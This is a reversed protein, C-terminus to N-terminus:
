LVIDIRRFVSRIQHQCFLLLYRDNERLLEKPEKFAKLPFDEEGSISGTLPGPFSPFFPLKRGRM